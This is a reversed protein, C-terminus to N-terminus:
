ATRRPPGAVKLAPGVGVQEHWRKFRERPLAATAKATLTVTM